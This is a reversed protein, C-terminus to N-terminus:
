KCGNIKKWMLVDHGKPTNLCPDEYEGSYTRLSTYLFVEEQRLISPIQLRTSLHVLRLKERVDIIDSIYKDLKVENISKNSFADNLQNELYILETGLLVEKNQLSLPETKIKSEKLQITDEIELLSISEGYGDFEIAYPFEWEKTKQLISVDVLSLRKLELNQMRIYDSTYKESAYSGISFLFTLLLGLKLWIKM